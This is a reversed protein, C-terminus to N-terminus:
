AGPRCGARASARRGRGSGGATSAATSPRAAPRRRGVRAVRTGAGHTLAAGARGRPHAAGRLRSASRPRDGPQHCGGGRAARDRRGRVGGGGGPGRAAAAVTAAAVAVSAVMPMDQTALAVRHAEALARDAAEFDGSEAELSAMLGEILAQGHGQQPLSPVVGRSGSARTSWSPARATWTVRCGRSGPRCPRCSRSTTGASIVGPARASRWSARARSTASACGCM